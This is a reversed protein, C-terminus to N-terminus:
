ISSLNKLSACSTRKHARTVADQPVNKPIEARLLLAVENAVDEMVLDGFYIYLTPVQIYPPETTTPPNM